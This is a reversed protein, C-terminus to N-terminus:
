RSQVEFYVSYTEDLVDHLPVFRTNRAQGTTRYGGLWTDWEREHDPVLIAAPDGADTPLTLARDEGEGVIGALVVPGDIFAVREPRDALPEAVVRKPLTLRVVAEGEWTREIDLWQGHRTAQAGAADVVAEGAVWWPIRLRLNFALPRNTEVKLWIESATPRVTGPDRGLDVRGPPPPPTPDGEGVTVKVDAGMRSWAIEAPVYGTVVLGRDDEYYTGSGHMANAQVLTGYCCWFDDTKSGWTKKSGPAMPLFYTCMGTFRHQQAMIGNYLNRERYDAYTADGTWRLLCEALRMMNYVTCHEQNKDSLRASLRGPPAWMEGSTQGGTALAERAEVAFHWYAEVSQRYRPEGTVEYARAMGLVEPITTNAHRNSLVDEGNRLRDFLRRREYREILEAHEPLKTVSALDAWVEMMGCTEFDLLDDMEDRTLTGTWRHFWKAANVLTDLAQENGLWRYAEWLGMLTKSAVYHAAWTLQGKATRYLYKEPISAVWEGGNEQQCRALEAVVTKVRAGLEHDDRAYALRSAASIWHGLFHGRVLSNPSEWGWHIGEPKGPPGWFGAEFYHNQLLNENKLEMLYARNALLRQEFPSFRLKVRAPDIERLATEVGAPATESV